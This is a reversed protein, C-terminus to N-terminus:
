FHLLCCIDHPFSKSIPNFVSHMEAIIRFCVNKLVAIKKILDVEFHHQEKQQQGWYQFLRKLSYYILDAFAVCTALLPSELVNSILVFIVFKM